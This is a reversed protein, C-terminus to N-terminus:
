DRYLVKFPDKKQFLIVKNEFLSDNEIIFTQLKYLMKLIKKTVLLFSELNLIRELLFHSIGANNM